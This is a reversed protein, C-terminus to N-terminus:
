ESHPILYKLTMGSKRNILLTEENSFYIDVDSKIHQNFNYIDKIPLKTKFIRRPENLRINGNKVEDKDFIFNKHNENDQKCYAFTVEDNRAIIEAFASSKITKKGFYKKIDGSKVRKISVLSNELNNSMPTFPEDGIKVSEINNSVGKMSMNQVDFNIQNCKDENIYITCKYANEDIDDMFGELGVMNDFTVSLPEPCYYSLSSSGPIEIVCRKRHESSNFSTTREGFNVSIVLGDTRFYFVIKDVSTLTKLTKLYNLLVNGEAIKIEVRRNSKDAEEVIGQYESIPIVKAKRPRGPNRKVKVPEEKTDQLIDM